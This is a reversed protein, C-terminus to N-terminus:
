RAVQGEGAAALWRQAGQIMDVPPKTELLMMKRKKRYCVLIKFTNKKSPQPFFLYALM